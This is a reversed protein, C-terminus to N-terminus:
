CDGAFKSSVFRMLKCCLSQVEFGFQATPAADSSQRVCSMLRTEYVCVGPTASDMANLGALRALVIICTATQCESECINSMSTHCNRRHQQRHLVKKLLPWQEVTAKKDQFDQLISVVKVMPEMAISVIELKFNVYRLVSLVSFM